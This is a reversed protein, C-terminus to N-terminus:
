SESLHISPNAEFWKENALVVSTEIQRAPIEWYRMLLKNKEELSVLRFGRKEYFRIAWSADAWTGV